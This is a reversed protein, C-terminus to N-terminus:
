DRILEDRLAKLETLAVQYDGVARLYELQTNFAANMTEILTRIDTRGQNYTRTLEQMARDRHQKQRATSEAVEYLARINRTLAQLRDEVERTERAQRVRELEFQSRQNRYEEAPLDSGFRVEYRLGVFYKPRSGGFLENDAEGQERDTGSVGYRAILSIDARSLSRASQMLNEAAQSRLEAIRIPRLDALKVETLAAPPSVSRPVEFEVESGQEIKAFTLLRDLLELYRASARRVTQERGELEAEVQALEGPNAYGIRDKRRVSEVLKRYRDRSNLAEKFSEQAVFTAWYLNLGEVVLAELEELRSLRSIQFSLEAARIQARTAEGFFNRWLNQTLGLIATTQNARDPLTSAGKLDYQSSFRNVDLNLRTGSSFTRSIGTTTSYNEELNYSLVGSINEFQSREYGTQFYFQYDLQSLARVLALRALEARRSAETSRYSQDLIMQSFSEPSMKLPVAWAVAM